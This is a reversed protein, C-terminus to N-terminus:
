LHDPHFLKRVEGPRIEAAGEPSKIWVPVASPNFAISEDASFRIGDIAKLYDHMEIMTTYWIEKNRGLRDSLYEMYKWGKSTDTSLFGDLEYSHGWIMFLMMRSTIAGLFREAAELAGTHHCTPKWLIFTDPLDFRGTEGAAEGRAYEVGLEPLILLVRHDYTGFPISMGRVPYAVLDELARRDNTIERRIEEEELQDLHLHNVTHGSVEHVKYLNSVEGPLIHYAGGLKGSNLHFTSRIGRTNFIEILRRDHESGDDYSMILAKLRGGPYCFKERKKLDM